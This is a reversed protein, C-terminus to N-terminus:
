ATRNPQRSLRQRLVALFGHQRMFVLYDRYIPDESLHWEETKARLFYVGNLALLLLCARLSELYGTHSLFPVALMWWSINKSLYAPHKFWRYPGNTLIGRNTLNSFRMGFQITSTVYVASLGLIVAAWIYPVVPLPRLFVGWERGDPNYRFISDAVGNWFPPYCILAALWGITRPQSSRIQIGFLKLTCLYGAAAYIVDAFFLLSYFLEFYWFYDGSGKLRTWWVIDDMASGVMIPLFFAKIAWAMVYETFEKRSIEADLGAVKRGVRYLIDQPQSSTRDEFSLYLPVLVLLTLWVAPKELIHLLLGGPGNFYFPITWYAAAIVIWTQVLGAVKFGIRVTHNRDFPALTKSKLACAGELMLIPTATLLIVLLLADDSAWHFARQLGLALVFGAVGTWSHWTAVASPPRGTSPSDRAIAAQFM